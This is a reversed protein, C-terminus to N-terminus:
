KITLKHYINWYKEIGAELSFHKEATMRCRKRLAGAESLVEKLKDAKKEYEPMSFDNIVVGVKEEEIITDTDGIGRNVIVPLSCALYEGFKIHSSNYGHQPNIFFIGASASSLLLPIDNRQPNMVRLRGLDVGRNKAITEIFSGKDQTLFLFSLNSLKDSAIRFFDFMEDVRHWTGVKGLYVLTTSKNESADKTRSFFNLDVCCPIVAKKDSYQPLDHEIVHSHKNTEITFFDCHRLLFREIMKMVKYMIGQHVIIGGSSYKDALLGRTDFFLKRRLIKVPLFSILTSILGRAHVIDIKNKVIIYFVRISGWFVDLFVALVGPAKSFYTFYGKFTSNNKEFFLKSDPLSQETEYTYVCYRAGKKSLGLLYPMGQSYIMLPNSAEQYAVFLTKM